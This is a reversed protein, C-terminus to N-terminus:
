LRDLTPDKGVRKRVLLSLGTPVRFGVKKCVLFIERHIKSTIHLCYDLEQVDLEYTVQIIVPKKVFMCLM